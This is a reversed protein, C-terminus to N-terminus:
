GGGEMELRQQIGLGVSVERERAPVRKKRVELPRVRAGRGSGEGERLNALRNSRAFAGNATGSGPEAPPISSGTDHGALRSTESLVPLAPLASFATRPRGLGIGAPPPSALSYVSPSAYDEGMFLAPSLVQPPSLPLVAERAGSADTTTRAPKPNPKPPPPPPPPPPPLEGQRALLLRSVRERAGDEGERGEGELEDPSRRIRATLGSPVRGGAGAGAGAAQTRPSVANAVARRFWSPRPSDKLRPTLSADSRGSAQTRTSRPRSHRPLKSPSGPASPSGSAQSYPSFLSPTRAHHAAAPPSPSTPSGPSGALGPALSISYRQGHRLLQTGKHKTHPPAIFPDRERVHAKEAPTPSLSDSYGLAACPLFAEEDEERDASSSAAPTSRRRRRALCWGVGFGLALSAILLFPILYVLPLPISVKSLDTQPALTASASATASPDTTSSLFSADTPTGTGTDSASSTDTTTTTDSETSLASLFSPSVTSSITTSAGDDAEAEAATDMTSTTLTPTSLAAAAAAPTTSTTTPAAGQPPYPWWYDYSSSSSTPLQRRGGARPARM